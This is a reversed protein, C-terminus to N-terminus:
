VMNILTNLMEDAVQIMKAAASYAHQYKIMNVMEEDLSVGSISERYNDLHEVMTIQHEHNNSAEKVNSGVSNVIANYYDDFRATNLAPLITNQLDAIALANSNDGHATPSQSAAVLNPDTIINANVTIDSATTGTFFVEGGNGYLDFGGSPPSGVVGVHLSNVEAIITGALIDLRSLYDPIKIDRSDLWGKLKGGSIESSINTTTGDKNIFGVDYFGNANVTVTLESTFVTEVLTRGTGTLVTIGGNSNEFSTVDILLSLDKLLLEQADKYSNANRDEAEMSGIKYNLDAIEIAIQNINDVTGKISIDLDKQIQQLDSSMQNFALAMTESKGVLAVRETQGTPNNALDQWGNWFENMSQILGSDSAADFVMEVRELAGQQSEWKGMKQTEENIQAGLFPDHIRQIETIEVGTGMAGVTSLVPESTVLNVRQRSYGPTNVNAINNGTIEIGTQHTFLAVKATNFIGYVGTM